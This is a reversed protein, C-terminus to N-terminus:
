RTGDCRIGSSGPRTGAHLLHLALAATMGVLLAIRMGQILALRVTPEKFTWVAYAESVEERREVLDQAYLFPFLVTSLVCTLIFSGLFLRKGIRRFPVLSVLPALWLLYQPSFVKSAAVLVMLFLLTACIFTLPHVQALRTCSLARAGGGALRRCHVVLLATAILLLGATLWPSLAVLVPSLSSRLSMSGYAHYAEVPHGLAHLALLLSSYTSGIELGRAQHYHLFGLSRAGDWLYFPLFCGAILGLLLLSRAAVAALVRPRFLALREEGPLSGLVWVPALVLPVLKFNVALALATFSWAYHLRSLLLVLALLILAALLLDLREYLLLWLASTSVLYALLREAQDEGSEGAFLWGVAALLLIFLLGDVV